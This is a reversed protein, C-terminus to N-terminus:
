FLKKKQAKGGFGKEGGYTGRGGRGGRGGGEGAGGAKLGGVGPWGWGPFFFAAAVGQPAWGARGGGRGKGGVGFVGEVRGPTGLKNPPILGKEGKEGKLKSPDGM